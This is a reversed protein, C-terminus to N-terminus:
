NEPYYEDLLERADTDGAKACKVLYYVLWNDASVDSRIGRRIANRVEPDNAHAMMALYHVAPACGMSAATQLTRVGSNVEGGCQSVFDDNDFCYPGEVIRYYGSIFTFMDTFSQYDSDTDKGKAIRDCLRDHKNFMKNHKKILDAPRVLMDQREERAGKYSHWSDFLMWFPEYEGYSNFSAWFMKTWFGSDDFEDHALIVPKKYEYSMIAAVGMKRVAHIEETMYERDVKQWNIASMEYYTYFIELWEEDETGQAAKRAQDRYMKAKAPDSPLDNKVDYVLSLLFPGQWIDPCAKQAELFADLNKQNVKKYLATFAKWFNKVEQSDKNFLKKLLAM